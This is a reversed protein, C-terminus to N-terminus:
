CTDTAQVIIAPDSRTPSAMPGIYKRAIVINDHWKKIAQTTNNAGFVIRAEDVQLTSISRMNLNPFDATLKGDVWWKLEGDNKGPTNARIMFEYCYWRNREPLHNPMPRFAPYQAPYRLWLGQGCPVVSGDPYWHDGYGSCQKPWYAYVHDYGPAAEGPRGSLVNQLLFLFFGTGNAPAPTGPPATTGGSFCIGNHNSGSDYYNSVWKEYMRMFYVDGKVEKILACGLEKASIPISMELGKAGAFHTGTETAIRVHEPHAVKSWNLTLQSVNTYSEFDDALIVDPDYGIGRDGPYRSAIGGSASPTPTPTPSASTTTAAAVNTFSSVTGTDTYSRVKFYYKANALLGTSSYRTVDQGVSAVKSFNINDRSRFIQFGDEFTSNDRWTLDIRTSTGEASLNSPANLAFASNTLLFLLIASLRKMTTGIKLKPTKCSDRTEVSVIQNKLSIMKRERLKNGEDM